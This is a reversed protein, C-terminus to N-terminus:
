FKLSIDKGTYLLSKAPKGPLVVNLHRTTLMGPFAGVRKSITLTSTKDNWNMPIRTFAGKQYNYNDGEDEYLSFTADAGPYVRVELPDPVGLTTSQMIPGLPLISGARMYMPIVDLPATVHLTQNGDIPASTNFDYWKGEPLYVDRKGGQTLIPATLLRAGLLWQDRMDETRPDNPFELLMPRMIPAGTRTTEDALTYLYPILRYRLEIAKKTAAEAEPGFAWPWRVENFVCHARMVPGFVSSQMWRTYLEPETTPLREFGGIDDSTYPMGALAWNLMIGKQQGLNDWSSHTDGTWTAAGLRQIGPCFARNIVWARRPSMARWGNVEVQSMQFFEDLTQEAEDNWWGDVGAQLLPVHHSWWWYAAEPLDYRLDTGIPSSLVWGQKKGFDLNAGNLRPKRIGVMHLGMNHMTAIDRPSFNTENFDWDDKFWEYDYIFTDVPIQRNRFQTWKDTIDDHGSYGWKSMMFGFTWRPPIPARGTLRSYNDLLGYATPAASLYIDAYSNPITWTLTGNDDKWTAGAHNNAVLISYGGTSWLFPVRTAGNTVMADGAPHTLPGSVDRAENGAGYFREGLPHKLTFTTTDPSTSVTGSLMLNKRAKWEWNGRADSSFPGTAGVIPNAVDADDPWDKVKAIFPSPPPAPQGPLYVLLHYTTPDFTDMKLQMVPTQPPLAWAPYALALSLVLLFRHIRPIM